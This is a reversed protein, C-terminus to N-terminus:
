GIGGIKLEGDPGHYITSSYIDKKTEMTRPGISVTTGAHIRDYVTVHASGVGHLNAEMIQYNTRLENLTEILVERSKKAKEFIGNAGREPQELIVKLLKDLKEKQALIEDYRKKLAKKKPELFLDIGVHIHTEHRNDDGISTAILKNFAILKGGRIIGKTIGRKGVIISNGSVVNSGIIANECYVSKSTKVNAHEIFKAKIEGQCVINVEKNAFNAPNATGVIGGSTSIRGSAEVTSIGITGDVAIDGAVKVNMGNQLDGNIVLAGEFEISRTSLGELNIEHYPVISMGLRHLIPKGEIAAVLLNPDLDDFKVGKLDEAFSITDYVEPIIPQGMIDIGDIGDYKPVLRMIPTGVKIYPLKKLSFLDFLPEEEDEEYHRLLDFPVLGDVYSIFHAPKSEEAPQGTAIVTASINQKDVLEQITSEDIGFIINLENLKNKVDDYTVPVGGSPPRIELYANLKDPAITIQFHGDIIIAIEAIIIKEDIPNLYYENCQELFLKASEIDIKAVDWGNNLFNGYLSNLSIAAKIDVDRSNNSNFFVMDFCAQVIGTTTDHEFTFVKYQHM